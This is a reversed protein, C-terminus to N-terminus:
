WRAARGGGVSPLTTQMGLLPALPLLGFAMVVGVLGTYIASAGRTWTQFWLDWTLSDLMWTRMTFVCLLVTASALSGVGALFGLTLPNRRITSGRVLMIVECGVLMALMNPGLIWVDALSDRIPLVCLLDLMLGVALATWRVVQPSAFMAVLTVCCFVFSPAIPLDRLRLAEKLGMELGLAIWLLLVLLARNM